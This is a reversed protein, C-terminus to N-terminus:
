ALYEDPVEDCDEEEEFEYTGDILASLMKRAFSRDEPTQVHRNLFLADTADTNHDALEAEAMGCLMEEKTEQLARSEKIEKIRREEVAFTFCSLLNLAQSGSLGCRRLLDMLRFGLGLNVEILNIRELEAELDDLSASCTEPNRMWNALISEAALPDQCIEEAMAEIIEDTHSEEMGCTIFFDRVNRLINKEESSM